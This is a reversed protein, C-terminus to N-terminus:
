QFFFVLMSFYIQSDNSALEPSLFSRKYYSIQWVLKYLMKCVIFRVRLRPSPWETKKCIWFEFLKVLFTSFTPIADNKNLQYNFSDKKTMWNVSIRTLHQNSNSVDNFYHIRTLQKWITYIWVGVVSPVPFEQTTPLDIAWSIGFPSPNWPSIRKWHDPFHNIKRPNM